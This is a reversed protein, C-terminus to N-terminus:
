AQERLRELLDAAIQANKTAGIETFIQFAERLPEVAGRVNGMAFRLQGLNMSIEAVNEAGLLDKGLSHAEEISALATRYQREDVLFKTEDCLLMATQRHDGSRRSEELAGRVWRLAEVNEGRANCAKAIIAQAQLREATLHFEVALRHGEIADNLGEDPKGSLLQTFARLTLASARQPMDDREFALAIARGYREVAEPLRGQTRAITGLHMEATAMVDPFGHEKGLRATESFCRMAAEMDGEATATNGEGELVFIRIRPDNTETALNELIQRVHRSEDLRGRKTLFEQYAHLNDPMPSFSLSGQLLQEAREWSGAQMRFRAEELFEEALKERAPRQSVVLLVSDIRKEEAATPHGTFLPVARLGEGTEPLKDLWEALHRRLIREFRDPEDYRAFKLEHAKEVETRFALVAKLQDGPDGLQDPPVDRLYLHIPKGSKVCLEYEEYFGSSHSGTPSGWRKWLILVALDAKLLDENILQQPRGRGPLTDEWGFAELHYGLGNAKTTNIEDIARPVMQREINVDGPSGVFVKLVTRKTSM